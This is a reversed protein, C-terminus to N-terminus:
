RVGGLRVLGVLMVVFLFVVLQRGLATLYTLAAARLVRRVAGQEQSTALGADELMTLGRASADREVPLTVLAFATQGALILVAATMLVPNGLWFGGIFVLPSVAAVQGLRQGMRTRLRMPAYGTASQVAHGVEHAVVGLSTVSAGQATAETLRLVKRAPDYHDTFRGPSRELKVEALGARELLKQAVEGGPLAQRSPQGEYRAFVQRVRRQALWALVSPVILVLYVPNVWM